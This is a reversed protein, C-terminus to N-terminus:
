SLRPLESDRAENKDDAGDEATRNHDGFSVFPQSLEKNQPMAVWFRCKQQHKFLVIRAM